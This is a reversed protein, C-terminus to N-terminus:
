EREDASSAVQIIQNSTQNRVIMVVQAADPDLAESGLTVSRTPLEKVEGGAISTVSESAAQNRVAYGLRAGRNEYVMYEVVLGSIPTGGFRAIRSTITLTNGSVSREVEAHLKLKRLVLSDLVLDYRDRATERSSAGQLGTAPGNFFAHPFGRATSGRYSEYRISDDPRALNDQNATLLPRQHYELILLQDGYTDKLEYLADQSAQVPAPIGPVDTYHIIYNEVLVRQPAEADPNDPDLPNTHELDGCAIMLAASTVLILHNKM